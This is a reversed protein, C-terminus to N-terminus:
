VEKLLKLHGLGLNIEHKEDMNFAHIQYGGEPGEEIGLIKYLPKYAIRRSTYRFKKGKVAKNIMDYVSKGM